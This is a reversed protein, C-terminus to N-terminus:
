SGVSRVGARAAGARLARPPYYNNARIRPAIRDLLALAKAPQRQELYLTSVILQTAAAIIPQGATECLAITQRLEPSSARLRKASYLAALQKFRPDCLTMGAPVDQEMMRAYRLAMETQGAFNLMQSLNGLVPARQPADASRSPMM